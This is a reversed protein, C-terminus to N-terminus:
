KAEKQRAEDLEYLGKEIATQAARDILFKKKEFEEVKNKLEAVEKFLTDNSQAQEVDFVLSFLSDLKKDLTLFKDHIITHGLPPPPPSLGKHDKHDFVSNTSQCDKHINLKIRKTPRQSSSTQQFVHYM